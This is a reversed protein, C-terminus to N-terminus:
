IRGHTMSSPANVKAAIVMVPYAASRNRNADFAHAQIACRNSAARVSRAATANGGADCIVMRTVNKSCPPLSVREMDTASKPTTSNRQCGAGRGHKHRNHRIIASMSSAADNETTTASRRKPRSGNLSGGRPTRRGNGSLLRLRVGGTLLSGSSSIPQASMSFLSPACSPAM